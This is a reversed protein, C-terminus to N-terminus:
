WSLGGIKQKINLNIGFIKKVNIKFKVARLLTTFVGIPETKYYVVFIPKM